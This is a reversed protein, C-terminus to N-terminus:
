PRRLYLDSTQSGRRVLTARVDQGPNASARNGRFFLGFYRPIRYTLMGTARVTPTHRRASFAYLTIPTNHEGIRRKALFIHGSTSDISIQLSSLAGTFNGRAATHLPFIAVGPMSCKKVSCKTVYAKQEELEVIPKPTPAHVKHRPVRIFRASCWSTHVSKLPSCVIRFAPMKVMNRITNTSKTPNPMTSGFRCNYPCCNPM